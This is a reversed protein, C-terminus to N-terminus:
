EVGPPTDLESLTLFIEADIGTCFQVREKLKEEDPAKNAYAHEAYFQLGYLATYINHESGDDGWLTVFVDKVGSAKCANLAAHSAQLSFNYNPAFTNWIWTGGAFAPTKKMKKHQAFIQEYHTADTQNYQWYMLQINEPIQEI